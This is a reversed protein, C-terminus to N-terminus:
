VLDRNWEKSFYDSGTSQGAKFLPHWVILRRDGKWLRRAPWTPIYYANLATNGVVAAPFLILQEMGKGVTKVTKAAWYGGSTESPSPFTVLRNEWEPIYHPSALNRGTACGLILFPFLWLLKKM